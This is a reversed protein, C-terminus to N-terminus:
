NLVGVKNDSLRNADYMNWALEPGSTGIFKKIQFYRVIPNTHIISQLKPPQKSIQQQQQQVQQQQVQQQQSYNPTSQVQQQQSMQQNIQQQQQQQQQVQQQQNYLHMQQQQMRSPSVPTQALNHATQHQSLQQNLHHPSHPTPSHASQSHIPQSQAQQQNYNQLNSPSQQLMPSASGLQQNTNIYQQQQIMQQQQQQQQQQHQQQQPSQQPLQQQHYNIQQMQISMNIPPPSQHYPISMDCHQNLSSNSNTSMPRPPQTASQNPLSANVHGYLNASVPQQQSPLQRGSYSNPTIGPQPMQQQPNIPGGNGNNSMRIQQRNDMINENQNYQQQHQQQQQQQQHHQQQQQQQNLQQHLAVNPSSNRYNKNYM